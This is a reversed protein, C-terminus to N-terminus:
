SVSFMAQPDVSAMGGEETCGGEGVKRCVSSSVDTM